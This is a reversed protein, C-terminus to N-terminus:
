PKTRHAAFSTTAAHQQTDIHHHSAAVLLTGIKWITQYYRNILRQMLPLAAILTHLLAETEEENLNPIPM